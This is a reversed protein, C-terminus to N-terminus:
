EPAPFPPKRGMASMGCRVEPGALSNIKSVQTLPAVIKFEPWADRAYLEDIAARRRMPDGQGFVEQLNRLLLREIVDTM